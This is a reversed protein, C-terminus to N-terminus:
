KKRKFEFRTAVFRLMAVLVFLIVFAGTLLKWPLVWYSITSTEMENGFGKYLTVTATYRGLAFPSNANWAVERYRTSKPLAFYADVPLTAVKGGFLNKVTISGYPVLHVPGTNKFAIEFGSPKAQFIGSDSGVAKFDELNGSEIVDGNVRVLVLSAIRSIIKTNGSAGDLLEGTVPDTPRNSIVVAGYHGGPEIDTPVSITVPITIKEGTKLTFDKIEPHVYDKLSYPSNEEDNLLVVPVEPDSSGIFDELSIQFRVTRANRNTVSVNKTVTEGPNIFIETKGPTVVFDNQVEVNLYEYTVAAEATASPVLVSTLALSLALFLAKLRLQNIRNEKISAIAGVRLKSLQSQRNM